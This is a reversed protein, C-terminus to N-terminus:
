VTKGSKRTAGRSGGKLLFRLLVMVPAEVLYYLICSAAWIFPLDAFFAHVTDYHSVYNPVKKSGAQVGMVVLHTLYAAYTLTSLPGFHKWSLISNVPGGLGNSCAFVIWALGLSWGLKHLGAYFGAAIPDPVYDERFSIVVTFLVALCVATSLTWGLMVIKKGIKLSKANNSQMFYALLIGVIYPTLRAHTPNYIDALWRYVDFYTNIIDASWPYNNLYTVVGPLACSFVLLLSALQLGAKPSHALPLLLMPSLWAVQMDVSTYWSQELCQRDIGIYNNVYAVVQWWNEQCTGIFRQGILLFWIPGNGFHNLVTLYFAVMIALPVTLRLYRYVYFKVADFPQQDSSRFFSRALLFGGIFFFSDVAMYANAVIMFATQRLYPFVQVPNSAGVIIMSEYKHGLAVWLMSLVKLGNLCGLSGERGSLLQRTTAVASLSKILGNGQGCLDLVTAGVVSVLIIASVALFVISGTELPPTATELSFCEEKRVSALVPVDPTLLLFLGSVLVSVDFPKCSAPVCVSARLAITTDSTAVRGQLKPIQALESSVSTQNFLATQNVLGVLTVRCYQGKISADDSSVSLCEDWHGMQDWNGYAIGDPYKTTADIMKLAWTSREVLAAQLTRIVDEACQLNIEQTSFPPILTSILFLLFILM